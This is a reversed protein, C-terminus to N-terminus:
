VGVVDGDADTCDHDAARDLAAVASSARSGPWRRLWGRRHGRGAAGPRHEHRRGAAPPWSWGPTPRRGRGALVRSWCSSDVTSSASCASPGPWRRTRGPRATRRAADPCYPRAPRRWPPGARARAGPSASRRRTARDGCRALRDAASAPRTVARRSSRRRRRGTTAARHSVSWGRPRARSGARPVPTRRRHRRPASAVPPAPAAGPATARARRPPRRRGRRGRRRSSCCPGAPAVEARQGATSTVVPATLIRPSPRSRRQHRRGQDVPRPRAVHGTSTSVRTPPATTAPAALM